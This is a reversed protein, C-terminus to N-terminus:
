IREGDGREGEGRRGSERELAMSLRSAVCSLRDGLQIGPITNNFYDV